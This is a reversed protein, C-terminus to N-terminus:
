DRFHLHNLLYALAREMRVPDDGFMGLGTNCAGCLLGRVEGTQHDHDIVLGWVRDEPRDCVLCLGGQAQERHEYDAVSLGHNACRITMKILAIEEESRLGLKSHREHTRRREQVCPKCYSHRGLISKTSRHFENLPKYLGCTVCRKGTVVVPGLFM